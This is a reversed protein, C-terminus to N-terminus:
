LLLIDFDCPIYEPTTVTRSRIYFIQCESKIFHRESYWLRPLASRWAQFAHSEDGRGFDVHQSYPAKFNLVFVSFFVPILPPFAIWILDALYRLWLHKTVKTRSWCATQGKSSRPSAFRSLTRQTSMLWRRQRGFLLRMPKETPTKTSVDLCAPGFSRGPLRAPLNWRWSLLSESHWRWTALSKQFCSCCCVSLSPATIQRHFGLMVIWYDVWFWCLLYIHSM